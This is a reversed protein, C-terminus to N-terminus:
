AYCRDHKQSLFFSKISFLIFNLNWCRTLSPIRITPHEINMIWLMFNMLNFKVRLIHMLNHQRRDFSISPFHPFSNNKNFFSFNTISCLNCMKFDCDVVVYESPDAFLNLHILSFLFDVSLVIEICLIEFHEVIWLGYHFFHFCFQSYIFFLFFPFFICYIFHFLYCLFCVFPLVSFTGCENNLFPLKTTWPTSAM